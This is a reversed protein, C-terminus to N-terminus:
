HGALAGGMTGLGGQGPQSVGAGRVQYGDARNGQFAQAKEGNRPDSLSSPPLLLHIIGQWASPGVWMQGPFGNRRGEARGTSHVGLGLSYVERGSTYGPCIIDM